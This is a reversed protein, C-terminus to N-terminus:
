SSGRIPRNKINELSRILNPKQKKKKKVFVLVLELDSKKILPCNQNQNLLWKWVQTPEM